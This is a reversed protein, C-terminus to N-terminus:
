SPPTGLEILTKGRFNPGYNGVAACMAASACSVGELPNRSTGLVKNPSPVIAWATGNWSEILTKHISAGVATCATASICSVSALVDFPRTRPVNPSTVLSWQSGNWIEALTKQVTDVRQFAGVAM